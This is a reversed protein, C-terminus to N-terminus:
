KCENCGWAWVGQDNGRSVPLFGLGSGEGKDQQDTRMIDAEPRALGKSFIAHFGRPEGKDANM